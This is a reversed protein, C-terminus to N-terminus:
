KKLWKLLRPLRNQRVQLYVCEKSGFSQYFRSLGKDNSGEFDLIRDHGAHRKIYESILFFMAANAKGTGNMGSFIFISRAKDELFIAGACLGGESTVGWVRAMKRRKAADVLKELTRYHMDKLAHVEKGRNNRFLRIVERPPIDAILQFDKKRAKKINRQTNESFNRFLEEYPAGLSLECNINRKILFSNGNFSNESNLNVEIYRFKEPIAGLFEAVEKEAPPRKSFVGLQQTFFPPYLYHINYKKGATLPMVSVYNEKVLAEWGPCVIDLYWSYAYVLGNASAAIAEDWKKKDIGNHPLHYIM